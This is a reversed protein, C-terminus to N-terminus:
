GPTFRPARVDTRNGTSSGTTVLVPIFANGSSVLGQYDGLFLGSAQPALSLDFPGAVHTETWSSGDRSTLLWADTLLTNPDATNNRWDYHMVGVTGDARVTVVPTFAAATSAQNIAVPVSWSRGGDTSRSLAIGDRAGGSFRGDQWVVWLSNDPGAAISGIIGGDRVTQGSAGDRTGVSRLDAVFVPASWSLGRDTSRMVALRVTSSSGVTDIQTFLNVLVGREAGAPLVVIRNGITQSVGGAATPTYIARAPEWSLGNDTSRALLTPGNGARDIRDWVAYVFGNATPDATLSNKDNFLTAGDRVLVAPASWSRGGDTSRSVLMANSSGDALSGGSFALAMVFATGDPAFDVWPDTAREFDGVSGTAAGGCRSFPHVTRQWTSGGDSSIASVIARAGGNTWRDQQWAALLRAPNTPDAAASPEVEANAYFSGAASGGTCSADLTADASVLRDPLSPEFPTTSGSGGGGCAALLALLAAGLLGRNSRHTM